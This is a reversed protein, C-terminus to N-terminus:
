QSYEDVTLGSEAKAKFVATGHQIRINTTAMRYGDHVKRAYLAFFTYLKYKLNAYREFIMLTNKGKLCGVFDSVSMKSPIEVLMHVHDPCIEEEVIKVEKRKCLMRM